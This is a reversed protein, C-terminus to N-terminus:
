NEKHEKHERHNNPRRTEAKPNSAGTLAQRGGVVLEEGVEELAKVQQRVTRLSRKGLAFLGRPTLLLEGVALVSLMPNFTRMSKMERWVSVVPQEAPERVQQVLNTVLLCGAASLAFLLHFSLVPIGFLNGVELPLYKLAQGGLVPGVATLLSSLALFVAVYAARLRAPALRVMLNFQMLQFGATMAGVVFYGAYLHWTWGPRALCWMVLATIAWIFACVQLVPRNGFRECLRGWSKLTVLGGLSALTTMKVVTGVGCGLREVLFVTYFPMSANLLLGWLGIFLCLWLYNKDHLVTLLEPLAIGRSRREKVESPFTMRTLFFLGILRSCGAAFFIWGFVRLSNDNLEAIQGAFMVALLTWAGFVLNRRAFYRGGLREPVLESISSSWAVSAISSACTALLLIGSFLTDRSNGLFPFAPALMWPLAGLSFTLLLLGYSSFRRSLGALLLPQL